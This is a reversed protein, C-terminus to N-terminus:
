VRHDEWPKQDVAIESIRVSLQDPTPIEGGLKM